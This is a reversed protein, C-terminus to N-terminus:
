ALTGVYRTEPEVENFAYCRGCLTTEPPTGDQHMVKCVICTRVEIEAEPAELMEGLYDLLKENREDPIDNGYLPNM